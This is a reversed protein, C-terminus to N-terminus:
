MTLVHKYHPAPWIDESHWTLDEWLELISSLPLNHTGQNTLTNLNKYYYFTSM